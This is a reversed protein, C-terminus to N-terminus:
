LIKPASPSIKEWLRGPIFPSKKMQWELIAQIASADGWDISPSLRLVEKPASNLASINLNQALRKMGSSTPIISFKQNPFALRILLLNLIDESSEGEIELHAKARQFEAFKSQVACILSQKWAFEKSEDWFDQVGSLPGSVDGWEVRFERGPLILDTFRFGAWRAFCGDYWLGDSWGQFSLLIGQEGKIEPRDEFWRAKMFSINGFTTHSFSYANSIEKSAELTIIEHRDQLTHTLIPHSSQWNCSYVSGSSFRPPKGFRFLVSGAEASLLKEGRQFVHKM